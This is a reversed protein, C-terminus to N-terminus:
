GFTIVLTSFGVVVTAITGIISLRTESRVQDRVLEIQLSEELFARHRDSKAWGASQRLVFLIDRIQEASPKQEEVFEEAEMKNQAILKGTTIPDWKKAM